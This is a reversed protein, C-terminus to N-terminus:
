KQVIYTTLGMRYYYDIEHFKDHLEEYNELMWRQDKAYTGKDKTYAINLDGKVYQFNITFLAERYDYEELDKPITTVDVIDNLVQVKTFGVRKLKTYIECGSHRNGTYPVRDSIELMSRVLGESDPYSLTLTDDMDRIYVTGDVKLIRKINRLVQEVNQMHLLVMSLIVIDFQETQPIEKYLDEVFTTSEADACVYKMEPFIEKAVTQMGQDIDVGVACCRINAHILRDRLWSGNNCGIDLVNIVGHKTKSIEKLNKVDIQRTVSMQVALRRQEDTDQVDYVNKVRNKEIHVNTEAETINEDCMFLQCWETTGM